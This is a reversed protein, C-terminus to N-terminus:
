SLTNRHSATPPVSLEHVLNVFTGNFKTDTPIWPPFSTRGEQGTLAHLLRLCEPLEGHIYLIVRDGIVEKGSNDKISGM